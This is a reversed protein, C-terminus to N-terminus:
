RLRNVVLTALAEGEVDECITLLPKTSGNRFMIDAIRKLPDEKKCRLRFEHEGELLRKTIPDLVNIAQVYIKGRKNSVKYGNQRANQTLNIEVNKESGDDRQAHTDVSMFGFVFLILVLSFLIFGHKKM